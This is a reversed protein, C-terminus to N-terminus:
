RLVAEPHHPSCCSGAPLYARERPEDTSRSPTADPGNAEGKLRQPCRPFRADVLGEDEVFIGSGLDWRGGSGRVLIAWLNRGAICGRSRARSPLCRLWLLEDADVERRGLSTPPWGHEGGLTRPSAGRTECMTSLGLPDGGCEPADKLVLAVRERPDGALRKDGARM